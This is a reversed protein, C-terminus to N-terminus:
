KCKNKLKLVIESDFWKNKNNEKCFANEVQNEKKGNILWQNRCDYCDIYSKGFQVDFTIM